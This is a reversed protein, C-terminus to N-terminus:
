RCGTDPFGFLAEVQRCSPIAGQGIHCFEPEEDECTVHDLCRVSGQESRATVIPFDWPATEVEIGGLTVGKVIVPPSVM